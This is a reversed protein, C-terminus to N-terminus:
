CQGLGEVRTSSADDFRVVGGRCVGPQWVSMAVQTSATWAALLQAWAFGVLNTLQTVLLYWGYVWLAGKVKVGGVTCFVLTGFLINVLVLWPLPALTSALWYARAGYARGDREHEFLAREDFLTVIGRLNGLIGFMLSFYFCSELNAAGEASKPQNFFTSAYSRRPARKSSTDRGVGSARRPLIYPAAGRLGGIWGMKFLSTKWISQSRAFQTLSRKMLARVQRAEDRRTTELKPLALAPYVSARAVGARCGQGAPSERWARALDAVSSRDGAAVALLFDAPNERPGPV